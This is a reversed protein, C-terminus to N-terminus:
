GTSYTPSTLMGTCAVALALRQYSVFVRVSKETATIIVISVITYLILQKRFLDNLSM